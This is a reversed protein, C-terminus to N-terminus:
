ALENVPIMGQGAWLFVRKIANRVLVRSDEYASFPLGHEEIVFAAEM